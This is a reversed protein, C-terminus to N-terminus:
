DFLGQSNLKLWPFPARTLPWTDEILKDPREDARFVNRDQDLVFKGRKQICCCVICVLEPSVTLIYTTACKDTLASSLIIFNTVYYHKCCSTLEM